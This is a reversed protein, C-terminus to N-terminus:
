GGGTLTLRYYKARRRLERGLRDYRRYREHRLIDCTGTACGSTSPAQLRTSRACAAWRATRTRERTSCSCRSRMRGVDAGHGPDRDHRRQREGGTRPAGPRRRRRRDPGRDDLSRSREQDEEAQRSGVDWATGRSLGGGRITRGNRQKGRRSSDATGYRRAATRSLRQPGHASAGARNRDAGEGGGPDRPHGPARRRDPPVRPGRRPRPGRGRDIPGAEAGQTELFRLFTTDQDAIRTVTVRTGLPCKLLSHYRRAEMAGDASPIPDGHPDVSPHGLMADMRDILRDSVVHELKEADDHVDTWSMGMIEVLFQEILRHRRLVMAALKAGAPTLRVGAYPEYEVLGSEALAKVMTTATGPAVGVATALQGMPVLRRDDSATEAQYLAKLYNEVTASPLM